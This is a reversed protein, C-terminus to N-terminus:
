GIEGEGDGQGKGKRGKSKWNGGKMNRGKM